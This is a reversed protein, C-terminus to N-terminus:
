EKADTKQHSVLRKVRPGDIDRFLSAVLKEPDPHDKALELMEAVRAADPSLEASHKRLQNHVNKKYKRNAPIVNADELKKTLDLLTACLRDYVVTKERCFKVVRERDDPGLEKLGPNSM